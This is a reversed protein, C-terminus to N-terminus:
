LTGRKAQEREISEFLAKFNGAGFGRAGMRQIIEFFLTPRDQVPKTFIQLLYGEDDADIMIGLSKLTEIDERLKHSYEELRGPVADYYAQPPHSLFEVGRSRLASVTKIIDDTAVAIHQVGSGEYFDLYEEIQSRKIGEAPENIPFKIRGNGNSMVKSMLASYETHIQKDDFSLFNVFGMVDEYWKVWTNMQGWGVNGVMHDIYKLGVPEPNYDSEWKEFGPLFIGSYNKREVFMHITEGYTYIGSRVVEGHADKEVTPEMFSKAGRATTEEWSKTADDVWLAIVKVGDGHKVIHENIPNKSSLPTTLVLRIKDQKIVYSVTDKSGTELGKYAWSQFGFATKYFHAAQKANGVYMEVYDTGLLPLFDQAGEFIKELGYDVSKIERSM